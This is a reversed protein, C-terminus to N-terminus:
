AAVETLLARYDPRLLSRLAAPPALDPDTFLRLLAYAAQVPVVGEGLARLMQKSTLGPVDTVWGPPLGMMWEVFTPATELKGFPGSPEIPFPAPGAYQEWRAVAESYRGWRAVHRVTADTLSSGRYTEDGPKGSRKADGATPTPLAIRRPGLGDQVLEGRGDVVSALVVPLAPGHRTGTREQVDARRELWGDPTETNDLHFPSPTPLFLSDDSLRPEDDEVWGSADADSGGARAADQEIQQEAREARGANHGADLAHPWAIIFVRWRQHPAGVDSARVGLWSSDYGLGALDGLVAGLARLAPRDAEGLCFACSEVEGGSARASLLGRVNEVVVLRPRLADVAEAMFRWLGSRTDDRLGRRVGAASVDQCPFGGSLVDVPEVASWDVASIDGLNPVDPWHHALIRAKSKDVDSVWVLRVDDLVQELGLGLGGYGAFLEGLRLM